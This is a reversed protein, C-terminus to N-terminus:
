KEHLNRDRLPPPAHLALEWDEYGPDVKFSPNCNSHLYDTARKEAYKANIVGGM